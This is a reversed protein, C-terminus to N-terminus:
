IIGVWDLYRVIMYVIILIGGFVMVPWEDITMNIEMQNYQIFVICCM